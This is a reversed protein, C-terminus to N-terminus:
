LRNCGPREPLGLRDRAAELPKPRPEHSEFHRAVRLEGRGLGSGM